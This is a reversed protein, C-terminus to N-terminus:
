SKREKAFLQNIAGLINRENEKITRILTNKEFYEKIQRWTAKFFIDPMPDLEADDFFVLSRLIHNINNRQSPFQRPTRKLIKELPERNNCYWYLDVFDRKRGRQSIAIIRMVAIDEPLLIELTGYHLKKRSPKFFPYAIFSAKAKDLIGYVTKGRRLTTQWKGTVELSDVLLDLDFDKKHTFFDLDVSKRHGCQLALATGGALYWPFESFSHLTTCAILARRTAPPLIHLFLNQTQATTVHPVM